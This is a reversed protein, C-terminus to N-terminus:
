ESLRQRTEFANALAGFSALSGPTFDSLQGLRQWSARAPGTRARRARNEQMLRILLAAIRIVFWRRYRGACYTQAARPKAARPAPALTHSAM